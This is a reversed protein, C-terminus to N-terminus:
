ATTPAFGDVLLQFLASSAQGAARQPVTLTVTWAGKEAPEVHRWSTREADTYLLQVAGDGTETPGELVLGAVEQGAETSAARQVTLEESGDPSVFSVSPEGDVPQYPFATWGRPVPMSFGLEDSHQELETSASTVNMTTGPSQGGLLRTATWGGLMGAIVVAAGALVYGAAAV